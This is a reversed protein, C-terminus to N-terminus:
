RQVLSFSTAQSCGRMVVEGNQAVVVCNNGNKLRYRQTGRVQVVDFAPADACPQSALKRDAGRPGACTDTETSIILKVAKEGSVV